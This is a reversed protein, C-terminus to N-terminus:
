CANARATSVHTMFRPHTARSPPLRNSAKRMGSSLPRATSRPRSGVAMPRSSRAGYGAPINRRRSFNAATLTGSKRRRAGVGRSVVRNGAPDFSASKIRDNHGTLVAIQEGTEADWIRVDLSTTVVRKGSGDFRASTVLTAHGELKVLERGSRVDSIRATGDSWTTVARQGDPSYAARYVSKTHGKLTVSAAADEVTWLRATANDSATFLRKGDASLAPAISTEADTKIQATVKGTAVDWIQTFGDSYHAVVRREARDFAAERPSAGGPAKLVALEEGTASDSVRVDEASTLVRKGDRDFVARIVNQTPGKLVTSKQGTDVDFISLGGGLETLLVRRGGLDLMGQWFPGKTSKIAVIQKGNETDWVRAM